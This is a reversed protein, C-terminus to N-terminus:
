PLIDLLPNSVPVVSYYNCFGLSKIPQVLLSGTSYDIDVVELTTNNELFHDLGDSWQEIWGSPIRKHVIILRTGVKINKTRIHNRFKHLYQMRQEYTYGAQMKYKKFSEKVRKPRRKSKKNLSNMNEM